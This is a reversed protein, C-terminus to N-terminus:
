NSASDCLVMNSMFSKNPLPKTLLDALQDEGKIYQPNAVKNKILEMAHAARVRIHRTRHQSRENEVLKIASENDSYITVPLAPAVDLEAAM